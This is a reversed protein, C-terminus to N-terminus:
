GQRRALAAIVDHLPTTGAYAGADPDSDIAIHGSNLSRTM